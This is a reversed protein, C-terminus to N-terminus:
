KRRSLQFTARALQGEAQLEAQNPAPQGIVGSAMPSIQISGLSPTVPGMPPPLSNGAM